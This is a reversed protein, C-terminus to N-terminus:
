LGRWTVYEALDAIKDESVTTDVCVLGVTIAATATGDHASGLYLPLDDAFAARTNTDTDEATAGLRATQSGGAIWTAGVLQAGSVATTSISTANGSAGLTTLQTTPGAAQRLRVSGTGDGYALWVDSAAATDIRGWVFLSIEDVTDGADYAVVRLKESGGNFQIAPGGGFDVDSAILSPRAVDGTKELNNGTATRTDWADVDGSTDSVGVAPDYVDRWHLAPDYRLANSAGSGNDQTIDPGITGDARDVTYTSGTEGAIPTAGAYWQGSGTSTLVEGHAVIGSITTPTAGGGPLVSRGGRRVLKGLRDFRTSM